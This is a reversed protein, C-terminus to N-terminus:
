SNSQQTTLSSATEVAKCYDEQYYLIEEMSDDAYVEIDYVGAVMDHTLAASFTFQYVKKAGSSIDVVDETAAALFDKSARQHLVIYPADEFASNDSNLIERTYNTGKYLIEM